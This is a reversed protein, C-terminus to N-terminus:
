RTRVLRAKVGRIPVTSKISDSSVVAEKGWVM